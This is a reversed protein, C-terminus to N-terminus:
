KNLLWSSSQIKSGLGDVIEIGLEKCIKAEPIEHSFRDGGKAFIFKNDKHGTLRYLEYILKISECVSSDGDISLFATNVAKLNQVILMREQETQFEKSGKIKRQYDNNVIVTLHHGLAKALNFYEIHGGHIPNMFGSGIVYTIPKPPGVVQMYNTMM